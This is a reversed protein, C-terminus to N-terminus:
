SAVRLGCCSPRRGDLKRLIAALPSDREAERRQRRETLLVAPSDCANREDANRQRTATSCARTNAPGGDAGHAAPDSPAGTRVEIPATIRVMQKTRGDAGDPPMTAVYEATRGPMGRRVVDLFGAERAKEIRETIRRPSRNLEAALRSRPVSVYGADTMHEALVLLVVRVSDTIRPSRVVEARWRARLGRRGSVM